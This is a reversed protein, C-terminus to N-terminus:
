IALRRRGAAQRPDGCSGEVSAREDAMKGYAEIARAMQDNWSQWARGKADLGQLDKAWVDSVTLLLEVCAMSRGEVAEMLASRGAKDKARPDCGAGLLARVIAESGSAAAIMLATRGTSSEASLDSTPLLERVCELCKREREARAERISNFGGRGLPEAAQAVDCAEMLATRGTRPKASLPNAGSALAMRVNELSALGAWSRLQRDIEREQADM